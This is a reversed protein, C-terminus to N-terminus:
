AKPNFALKGLWEHVKKLGKALKDDKDTKTLPAIGATLVSAGGVIALAWALVTPALEILKEM